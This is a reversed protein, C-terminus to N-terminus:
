SWDGADGAVTAMMAHVGVRNAIFNPTDKAVVIGKGLRDQAFDCVSDLVEPDTDATPIVEFLKM